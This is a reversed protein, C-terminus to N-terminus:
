WCFAGQGENVSVFQIFLSDRSSGFSISIASDQAGSLLVVDSTGTALCSVGKSSAMDSGKCFHTEEGWISDSLFMFVHSSRRPVSFEFGARELLSSNGVLIDSICLHKECPFVSLFYRRSITRSDESILKNTGRPVSFCLLLPCGAPTSIWSLGSSTVSFSFFAKLAWTISSSSMLPLSSSSLLVLLLMLLICSSLIDAANWSAVWVAREKGGWIFICPPNFVLISVDSIPSLNEATFGSLNGSSLFIYKEKSFFQRTLFGCSSLLSSSCAGCSAAKCCVGPRLNLGRSCCFGVYTLSSGPCLLEFPRVM